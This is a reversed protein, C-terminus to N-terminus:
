NKIPFSAWANIACVGYKKNTNRKIWMYGQMGWTPGGSNKVIWYDETDTSNYGVLLMTHSVEVSDLPCDDGQFVGHTYLQYSQSRSYIMVVIPQKAVACLLGRDSRPASKHASISSNESNQIQSSRCVGKSATYPYSENTAIGNNEEVWYFARGVLGRACSGTVDCDLIEQESLSILKGTKIAVIGEIAGVTGFAWCAGCLRQNKVPTVAGKLRWDLSSPPDSCTVDQVDDDNVIDMADTNLPMHTERFETISLDAFYTLGLRVSNPSDRKANSEVIYKLNSVFTAFKKSMEELDNYVRGNEKKWGQFLEIVDDQNPLKDLKLDSISTYKSTPIELRSSINLIDKNEDPKKKQIAVYLCLCATFIIFILFRNSTYSIKM